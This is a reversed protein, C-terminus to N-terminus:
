SFKEVSVWVEDTENTFVTVLIMGNEADIELIRGYLLEPPNDKPIM